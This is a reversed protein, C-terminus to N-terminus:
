VFPHIFTLRHHALAAQRIPHLSKFKDSQLFEGFNAMLRPVNKEDPPAFNGVYVPRQRYEGANDPDVSLVRRHLNLIHQETIPFEITRNVLRIAAEMGIVEALESVDAGAPAKNTTLVDRVQQFTLTNGEIAITHYIFQYYHENLVKLLKLDSSGSTISRFQNM